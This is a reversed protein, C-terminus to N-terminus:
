VPDRECVEDVSLSGTSDKLLFVHIPTTEDDDYITLTKAVPDILSRNSEFKLLVEVISEIDTLAEGTSGVITHETKDEDWVQDSIEEPSVSSAGTAYRESDTQGVGSDSRFVYNELPDWTTFEYKYFGDGVETMAADTVVLTQTAARVRWIRVTVTLGTAPAGDTTVYTTVIDDM